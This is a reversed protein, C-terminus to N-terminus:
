LQGPDHGNPVSTNSSLLKPLRALRALVKLVKELPLESINLDGDVRRQFGFLAVLFRYGSADLPNHPGSEVLRACLHVNTHRTRM